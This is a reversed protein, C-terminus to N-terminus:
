DETRARPFQEAMLKDYCRPCIGHSFLTDSRAAIYHEVQEWYNQDNRISKCYCCIPLLGQLQKVNVLAEELQRVRDALSQQLHLVRVGVQLRAYLEEPDFPKILYDDAGAKLGALVDNRGSRATLLVAYVLRGAPLARIRRCLELGDEGPMSWDLVALLARSHGAILERAQDGDEALIVEHGWGRLHHALLARYVPDDDAVLVNM